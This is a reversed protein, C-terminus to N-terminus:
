PPEQELLLNFKDTYARNLATQREMTLSAWEARKSRQWDLLEGATGEFTEIFKLAAEYFSPSPVGGAEGRKAIAAVAENWSMSTDRILTGVLKGLDEPVAIDGEDAAAAQIAEEVVKRLRKSRVALRYAKDLCATDPVVKKVGQEVLKREVYAVLQSSTMANLEVRRGTLLFEIEADTAGNRKLRARIKDPSDKLSVSESELGLARVDTLRLGLDIVKIANKFTYRDTNGRLTGFISFGSVDFDHLVFVPISYRGCMEDVLYRLATVSMGKSSTIAIDYREALRVREFLPNFGEKECFLVGGFRGDPGLTAVDGGNLKPESFQPEGISALYKRVNLTGLGFMHKTHPETFHGRDDWVIDWDVGTERVYDVLLGQCFYQSDLNEKGTRELIEGRAAYYIQRANAPLTGNSSADMYARQMVEYAVEKITAKRVRVLRDHRNARARAHREEAKRQDAWRKTGSKVLGAIAEAPTQPRVM